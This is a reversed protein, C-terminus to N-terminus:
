KKIGLVSLMFTSFITQTGITMLTLAVVSNKIENLQGFGTKLWKLFILLFILIGLFSIILGTLIGKEITLYSYIKNLFKNKEKLETMLYTKAFISFFILQYGTITLLSAFFMPHIYFKIGFFEPTTFYLLFLTALGTSFIFAGPIFFLFFPTYLLLFRLHKWGDSFSRLKSRGKRKYYDIPLEKIKLNNKVTKILIESAFEMGKTQLNLKELASKKIARMGCHPDKIKIKFFLWLLFSFLPNGIYQHLWPMAEKEIKGGFRNGIVFDYGQRLYKLFLPIEKFNYTCDADAMFIYKGKAIKFGELYASGYGERDHKLLIVKHKKAIQPSKDSSSDSVIIEAKIKDNKIVKKIEKLCFGLSKEENRCPLIITLEIKEGRKKSLKQM